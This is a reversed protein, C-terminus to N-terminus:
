ADHIHTMENHTTKIMMNIDFISHAITVYTYQVCYNNGNTLFDIILWHM